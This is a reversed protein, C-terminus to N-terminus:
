LMAKLGFYIGVNLVFVVCVVYWTDSEDLDFFVGLLAFYLCFEVVLGILFGLPIVALAPSLVNVVADPAVSVAALKLVAPWFPGLAIGRFKVAVLVGILMVATGLVLQAGVQTLASEVDGFRQRLDDEM